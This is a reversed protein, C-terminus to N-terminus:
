VAISENFKLKYLHLTVTDYHSTVSDYVLLQLLFRVDSDVFDHLAIWAPNFVGWYLDNTVNVGISDNLSTNM